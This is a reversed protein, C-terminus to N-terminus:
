LYYFVEFDAQDLFKSILPKIIKLKVIKDFNCYDQSLNALVSICNRTVDYHINHNILM